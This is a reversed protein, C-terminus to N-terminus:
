HRHSHKRGSNYADGKERSRRQLIRFAFSVFGIAAMAYFARYPALALGSLYSYYGSLLYAFSLSVEWGQIGPFPFLFFDFGPKSDCVGHLIVGICFASDWFWPFSQGIGIRQLWAVFSPVFMLAALLHLVLLGHCHHFIELQTDEYSRASDPSSSSNEDVPFQKNVGGDYKLVLQKSSQDDENRSDFLEKNRAHSRFSATLFSSLANHCCLAQCLLLIFLGLAPHVLCVLTIAVLSTVLFPKVRIIKVV